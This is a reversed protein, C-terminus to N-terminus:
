LANLNQFSFLKRISTKMNKKDSAQVRERQNDSDYSKAHKISRSNKISKYKSHSNKCGDSKPGTSKLKLKFKGERPEHLSEVEFKSKM